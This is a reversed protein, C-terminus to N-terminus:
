FLEKEVEEVMKEVVEDSLAYVGFRERLFMFRLIRCSEGPEGPMLCWFGGMGILFFDYEGAKTVSLDLSFGEGAEGRECKSLEEYERCVQVMQIMDYDLEDEFQLDVAVWLETMCISLVAELTCCTEVTELDCKSVGKQIMVCCIAQPNGMEDVGEISKIQEWESQVM